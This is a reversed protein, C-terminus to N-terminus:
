IFDESVSIFLSCCMAGRRSNCKQYFNCLRLNKESFTKIESTFKRMEKESWRSEINQINPNKDWLLAPASTKILADKPLGNDYAWFLVEKSDCFINDFESFNELPKNTM